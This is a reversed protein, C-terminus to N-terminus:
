KRGRRGVLSIGAFRGTSPAWNLWEARAKAKARIRARKATAERKAKARARIPADKAELRDRAEAEDLVAQDEAPLQYALLAATIQADSRGAPDPRTSLEFDRQEQERQNQSEQRERACRRQSAEITALSM